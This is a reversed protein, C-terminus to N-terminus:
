ALENMLSILPLGVAITILGLMIIALLLAFQGLRRRSAPEPLFMSASILALSISLFLANFAPSLVWITATPLAMGFDEFMSAIFPRLVFLKATLGCWLFCAFLYVATSVPKQADTTDTVRYPNDAGDSM